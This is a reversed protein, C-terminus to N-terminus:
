FLMNRAVFEGMMLLVKQIYICSKTCHVSVAASWHWPVPRCCHRHMTGFVTYVTLFHQQPHAFKDGSVRLASKFLNICSFTSADQQNSLDNYQYHVTLCIDLTSIIQFYLHM